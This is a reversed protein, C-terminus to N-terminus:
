GRAFRRELEARSLPVAVPRGHPCTPAWPIADLAALLARQERPDLREGARRAAHCALSAFLRDVAEPARLDGAGPALQDAVERLLAAPDHGSLEAPIARVALVGEGFPEVDFGIRDLGAEAVRAARDPSLEVTVPLLLAQRPVARERWAARLREFLVREHAAHQDILVLGDPAELLLYTALLQGILPLDAFRLRPAPVSEPPAPASPSPVASRGAFIWDSAGERVRPAAPPAGAVFGDGRVPETSAVPQAAAIWRRGGLAERVARSVLRHVANPEAFRVEWKAPHVNVDVAQPPLDLFLVASPFRGRPLVDRYADLLAHRLLRDRVPRRQVFLYLGAATPRHADPRSAFGAIRLAGDEAALAVLGEAERESLVAAIRDLPEAVAPWSVAPRDDRRVDFHVGPLALAARALWDAVHSWETAATKLFKRRAPVNHFLEAVEVRTGEPVGAAREGIRKGGEVEIEVGAPAGRARTRLRLRSVSAIAPLAEGRFGFTAIRALDDASGIKSTAHRELALHADAPTMGAGDDAVAVLAAGGERVDVRIRAAGADLANEVLEKVVSAPREVVEGAAIQDVLADPLRHVRRGEGATPREGPAGPVREGFGERVPRSRAPDGPDTTTEGEAVPRMM